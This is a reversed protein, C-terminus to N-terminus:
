ILINMSGNQSILFKDLRVETYGHTPIKLPPEEKPLAPPPPAPPSVDTQAPIRHLYGFGIGCGLSCALCFCISDLKMDTPLSATFFM